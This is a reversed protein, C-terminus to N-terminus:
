ENIYSILTKAASVLYAAFPECLKAPLHENALEFSFYGSFGNSKLGLMADEWDVKGTFPPIHHDDTAFNDNVHLVKLRSGILALEESQKLSAINAHGFDWCVGAGLADALDCLEAATTCYRHFGGTFKRPRMNEIALGVGKKAAYEAFPLLHERAKRKEEEYDFNEVDRTRPHIVAWPAGAAAAIDIACIVRKGFNALKEPTDETQYLFPLHAQAVEMGCREAASLLSDLTRQWDGTKLVADTDLDLGDFGARACVRLAEEPDPIRSLWLLSTSIKMFVKKREKFFAPLARAERKKQLCNRRPPRSKENAPGCLANLAKRKFYVPPFLRFVNRRLRAPLRRRSDTHLDRDALNRSLGGAHLRFSMLFTQVAGFVLAAAFVVLPNLGSIFCFPLLTLTLFAMAATFVIHREKVPHVRDAYGSFLM